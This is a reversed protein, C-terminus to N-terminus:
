GEDAPSKEPAGVATHSSLDDELNRKTGIPSAGHKANSGLEFDSLSPKFWRAYKAPM